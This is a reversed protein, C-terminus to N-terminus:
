EIVEVVEVVEVKGKEDTYTPANAPKRILSFLEGTEDPIFRDIAALFAHIFNPSNADLYKKDAHGSRIPIQLKKLEQTPTYASITFLCSYDESHEVIECTYEKITGIALHNCIDIFEAPPIAPVSDDSINCKGKWSAEIADIMGRVIVGSLSNRQLDNKKEENELLYELVQRETGTFKAITLYSAALKAPRNKLVTNPIGITQAYLGTQLSAYVEKLYPEFHIGACDESRRKLSNLTTLTKLAMLDCRIKRPDTYGSFKGYALEMDLDDVDRRNLVPTDITIGRSITDREFNGLTCVAVTTFCSKRCRKLTGSTTKRMRGVKGHPSTSSKLFSNIELGRESDGNDKLEDLLITCGREVTDTLYAQSYNYDHDPRYCVQALAEMLVSKGTNFLGTVLILPLMVFDYKWYGQIVFISLIDYARPDEINVFRRLFASIGRAIRTLVRTMFTERPLPDRPRYDRAISEYEENFRDMADTLDPLDGWDPADDALGDLFAIDEWSTEPYPTLLQKEGNINYAQFGTLVGRTVIPEVIPWDRYCQDPFDYKRGM